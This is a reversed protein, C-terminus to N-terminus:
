FKWTVKGYFGRPVETTIAGITGAPQEAHQPDFLNQGVLSFELQQTPRYSWRVDATVYAPVQNANARAVLSDVYRVQADLSMQESFDFSSRVMVQHKPTSNAFGPGTIDVQVLAYSATLRWHDWPAVTLSAEGGYARGEQTNAWSVAATGPTGPTFTTQAPNFGILDTYENYYTALDLSVRKSPQLRYGLEYAWLVEAAPNGNGLIVPTYLGGGPGTFNPGTIVGLLNAAEFESPTRVARSVAAWLTQNEAPKLTARFSPQLELGTFENHELKLGATLTLQDPVLKFEDQVFASFLHQRDQNDLVLFATNPLQQLRTAAFRYGLGWIVEHREGLGFTNQATLDFTDVASGGRFIDNRDTRDYYAQVELSAQDLLTHTWRGLTNVNYADSANDALQNVVAGAQWTLQTADDPYHDLRFGLRESQWKDGGPNGNALPYDDTLQYGGEVRYYTDAGLKGGYRAGDMTLHVDGGSGYLFTGQTERASKSVVNIVGNVANAGWVTAGPGRIVEVRDVDELNMQQLDWFVGAFIPNYVTRGDVLVLLKNAYLSSFGRASIAWEASNAAAVHLGPVLRLAEAFSTAGSRRLDDNNLVFIAAAADTLKEERKSVSTVKVDLLEELSLDAVPNNTPAAGANASLLLGLSSALLHGRTPRSFIPRGNFM